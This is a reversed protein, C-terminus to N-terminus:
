SRVGGARVKSAVVQRNIWGVIESQRWRSSRGIKIPQPFAQAAIQGYIFSRCFGTLNVVQGIPLFRDPNPVVQSNEM